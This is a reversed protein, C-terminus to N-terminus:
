KTRIQILKSKSNNNATSNQCNKKSLNKKVFKKAFKKQRIIKSLNIKVFKNQRNNQGIKQGIKKIFKLPQYKKQLKWSHEEETSLKTNNNWQLKSM